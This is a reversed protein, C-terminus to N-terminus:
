TAYNLVKSKSRTWNFLYCFFIKSFFFRYFSRNFWDTELLNGVFISKFGQSWLVNATNHKIRYAKKNM